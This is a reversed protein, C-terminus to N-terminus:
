YFVFGFSYVLQIGILYILILPAAWSIGSILDSFVKEIYMHSNSAMLVYSESMVWLVFTIVPVLSRSFSSPFFDGTVSLLIAHPVASLLSMIVISIFLELLALRLGMKEQYELKRVFVDLLGSKWVSGFASSLLLLCVLATSSMNELVGGFYWRVGEASLLSHLGLEPMAAAILWSVLVVAVQLIGIVFAIYALIKNLM